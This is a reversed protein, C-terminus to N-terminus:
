RCNHTVQKAASAVAAKGEADSPLFSSPFLSLQTLALRDDPLLLKMSSAVCRELEAYGAEAAFKLGGAFGATDLADVM